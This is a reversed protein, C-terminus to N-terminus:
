HGLFSDVVRFRSTVEDVTLRKFRSQTFVHVGCKTLPLLGDQAYNPVIISLLGEFPMLADRDDGGSHDVLWGPHSHVQALLTVESRAMTVIAEANSRASTSFSGATTAAFPQLCTLVFLQDGVHRGAWYVVGEHRESTTGSGCLLTRTRAVVGAAIWATHFTPKPESPTRRFWKRVNM